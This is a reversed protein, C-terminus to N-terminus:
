RVDDLLPTITLANWFPSGDKRYNLIDGQFKEGRALADRIARVAEPATNASEIVTSGM